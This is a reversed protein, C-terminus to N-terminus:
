LNSKVYSDDGNGPSEVQGRMDARVRSHTGEHDNSSAGSSEGPGVRTQM